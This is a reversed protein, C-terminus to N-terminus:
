SLSLGDKRGNEEDWKFDLLKSSIGEMAKQITEILSRPIPTRGVQLPVWLEGATHRPNPLHPLPSSVEESTTGIDRHGQESSPAAWIM